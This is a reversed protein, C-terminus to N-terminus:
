PQPAGQTDAKGPAPAPAPAGPRTTSLGSSREPHRGGRRTDPSNNKNAAANKLQEALTTGTLSPLEVYDAADLLAKEEQPSSASKAADRLLAGASADGLVIMSDMAAKRITADKDYLYKDIVPLQAADYTTAADELITLAAQRQQELAEKQEPTSAAPTTDSGHEIATATTAAPRPREHTKKTEVTAAPRESQFDRNTLWLGAAIAAALLTAGAAIVPKSTKM